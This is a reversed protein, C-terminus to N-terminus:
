VSKIEKGWQSEDHSINTVLFTHIVPRVFNQKLTKLLLFPQAGKKLKWVSNKQTKHQRIDKELFHDSCLLFSQELDLDNM